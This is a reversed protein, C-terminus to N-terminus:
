DISQTVIHSQNVNLNAIRQTEGNTWYIDVYEVASADGLGFHTWPSKASLYSGATTVQRSLKRDELALYVTAGHDLRGHSNIPLLQLWNGGNSTNIFLEAPADRNVVVLDLRGDNNLDGVAAGRSTAAHSVVEMVDFRGSELGRYLINPEAYADETHPEALRAIAGNAQFIDWQQDNNFDAMILGFRTYRRSEKSLGVEATADQFYSGRNRFFSDSQGTLNVILVDPKEDLDVDESIIGMGARTQGNQDIAVNRLMAEDQFTGKGLNIWLHNPSMDNAVFIDPTKNGDFDAVVVGLGNGVRNHIGSETTIDRFRGNGENEFLRDQTPARYVTPSCYERSSHKVHLCEQESGISWRVYNAVFLDLDGDQDFDAFAASSGWSDNALGASYGVEKFTGSGDNRLLANPGLTTVYMDIDGDNDYDGTAVGMGYGLWTAADGASTSEIFYGSGDNLFLQNTPLQDPNAEDSPNISGSQIFYVDLDTDNDVDILAVGGGMMEPMFWQGSAGSRHTFILGRQQAVESFWPHLPQNSSEQEPSEACGVVVVLVPLLLKRVALRM